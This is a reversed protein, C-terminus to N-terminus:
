EGGEEIIKHLRRLAKQLYAESAYKAEFWLGEDEAQENVLKKIQAIRDEKGKYPCDKHITDPNLFGHVRSCTYTNRLLNKWVHPCEGCNTIGNIEKM